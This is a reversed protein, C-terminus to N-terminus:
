AGWGEGGFFLGGLFIGGVTFTLCLYRELLLGELIYAWPSNNNATTPQKRPM